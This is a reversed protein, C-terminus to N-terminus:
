LSKGKGRQLGKQNQPKPSSVRGTFALPALGSITRMCFLIKDRGNISQQRAATKGRGWCCESGQMGAGHGTRALAVPLPHSFSIPDLWCCSSLCPKLLQHLTLFVSSNFSASPPLILFLSYCAKGLMKADWSGTIRTVWQPLPLLSLSERKWGGLLAPCFPIKSRVLHNKVRPRILNVVLTYFLHKTGTKLWVLPSGGEESNLLASEHVSAISM